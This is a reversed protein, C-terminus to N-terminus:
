KDGLYAKAVRRYLPESGPQYQKDGLYVTGGKYNCGKVEVYEIAATDPTPMAAIALGAVNRYKGKQVATAEDWKYTHRGNFIYEAVREVGSADAGIPTTPHFGSLVDEMSRSDKTKKWAGIPERTTADAVPAQLAARDQWGREYGSEFGWWRLTTEGDAYPMGHNLSLKSALTLDVLSDKHEEDFAERAKCYLEASTVEGLEDGKPAIPHREELLRELFFLADSLGAKEVPVRWGIIRMGPRQPDPINVANTLDTAKLGMQNQHKM